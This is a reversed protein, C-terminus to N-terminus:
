REATNRPVGLRAVLEQLLGACAAEIQALVEGFGDPGGYYPDGVELGGVEHRDVAPDFSRLLVVRSAAASDPALSRLAALHSRDMAVILDRTAFWAPDFQRARHELEYGAAHLTALSRRDAGQGLHWDGLGASDVVIRSGVGAASAQARLVAEATPSRCINGTCVFCVRLM